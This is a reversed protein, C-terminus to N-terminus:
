NDEHLLTTDNRKSKRSRRRKRSYRSLRFVGRTLEPVAMLLTFQSWLDLLSHPMPTGTLILRRKAYPALKLISTSWMGGKFRKIHHSEDLILLFNHKCLLGVLTSQISSAMQYTLLTLENAKVLEELNDQGGVIRLSKPKKGFCAEYEDEWPMFSSRPGIVM